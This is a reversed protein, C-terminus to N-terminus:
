ADDGVQVQIPTNTQSLLGLGEALNAANRPSPEVEGTCYRSIQEQSIGTIYSAEMQTMNVQALAAVM